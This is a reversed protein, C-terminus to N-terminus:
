HDHSHHKPALLSLSIFTYTPKAMIYRFHFDPPLIRGLTADRKSKLMQKQFDKRANGYGNFIHDCFLLRSNAYIQPLLLLHSNIRRKKMAAVIESQKEIIVGNMRGHCQPASMASM